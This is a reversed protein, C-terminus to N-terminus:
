QFIRKIEKRITKRLSENYRDPADVSIARETEDDRKDEYDKTMGMEYDNVLDEVDLYYEKYREEPSAYTKTEWDKLMIKLDVLIEEADNSKFGTSTEDDKGLPFVKKGLEQENMLDVLKMIKKETLQTDAGILTVGQQKLKLSIDRFSKENMDPFVVDFFGGVSSREDFSIWNQKLFGLTRKKQSNPIGLTYM